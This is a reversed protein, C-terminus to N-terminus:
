APRALTNGEPWRDSEAADTSLAHTLAAIVAPDFQTEAHRRLEDLAWAPSHAPRYPRDTTMAGYADAAAVIRAALPIAEGALGDPYGQGDWREHHARVVPALARLAPARGVVDAGVVPHRRMTVWEEETLRAPKRLIADPVVVKGVDHLRAALGVMRAESADLGLALAVRLALTAVAQAHQGTYSDRADVLAALAEVTGVLATEERSSDGGIAALAMAAPDAAARAQNRGLRKAAYMARDAATIVDDRTTADHPYTALGVSCTLHVGGGVSFPHAAVAARVREAVAAADESVTEPLLALFEEGGWRGLTDVGRLARRAVIALERLVADGAHHGYGDNLAKFHDLDFFLMSCPRGFRHARELEQDAAAVLARHNPLDTLPDTTALARLRDNATALALNQRAVEDQSAHLDANSRELRQAYAATTRYLARNELLALVQRLLMLGLLVGGGLYVGPELAEDGHIRVTTLFLLGVAPVLAYPLLMRWLAPASAPTSRAVAPDLTASAEQHILGQCVAYAALGILMDGLPWGVDIVTGTVYSGQLNQYDFICDAAILALLGLALLRIAPRMAASTSRAALLLLCFILVLDCLPYATGVLKAGLSEGQQLLTPGLIFYWSFTVLAAMIMLGDLVVRPRTAPPLPRAPLALIGALLLPYTTLYAADDWSPFPTPRHLIQEYYTWIGQAIADSLVGAALLLPAWPRVPCLAASSSGGDRTRLQTVRRWVLPLVLLPGVCQAGNDVAQVLATAGPKLLLWAVLLGNFAVVFGVYWWLLRQEGGQAIAEDARGGSM